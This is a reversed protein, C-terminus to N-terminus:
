RSPSPIALIKDEMDTNAEQGTEQSWEAKLDKMRRCIDQAAEVDAKDKGCAEDIMLDISTRPLGKQLQGLAFYLYDIEEQLRLWRPVRDAPM